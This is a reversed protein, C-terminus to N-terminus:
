FSSRVGLVAKTSRGICKETKFSCKYSRVATVARSIVKETRFSSEYGKFNGEYAKFQKGLVRLIFNKTHFKTLWLIFVISGNPDATSGVLIIM